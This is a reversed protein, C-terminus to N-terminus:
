APRSCTLARSPLFHMAAEEGRGTTDFPVIMEKVSFAGLIVRRPRRQEEGPGLRRLWDLLRDHFHSVSSVVRSRRRSFLRRSLKAAWQSALAGTPEVLSLRWERRIDQTRAPPLARCLGSNASNRAHIQSCRTQLGPASPSVISLYQPETWLLSSPNSSSPNADAHSSALKRSFGWGVPAGHLPADCRGTEGVVM